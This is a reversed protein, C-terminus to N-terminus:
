GAAALSALFVATGLLPALVLLPRRQLVAVVVFAPVAFAGLLLGLLTWITLNTAPDPQVLASLSTLAIAGGVALSARLALVRRRAREPDVAPM